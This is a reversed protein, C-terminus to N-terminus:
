FDKFCKLGLMRNNYKGNNCCSMMFWLLFASFVEGIGSTCRARYLLGDPYRCPIGPIPFFHWVQATDERPEDVTRIRLDSGFSFIDPFKDSKKCTNEKNEEFEFLRAPLILLDIGLIVPGM